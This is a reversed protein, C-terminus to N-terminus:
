EGNSAAEAESASAIMIIRPMLTDFVYLNFCNLVILLYVYFYWMHMKNNQPNTILAQPTATANRGMTANRWAEHRQLLAQQISFANRLDLFPDLTLLCLSLINLFKLSRAFFLRRKPKTFFDICSLSDMTGMEKKLGGLKTFYGLKTEYGGKTSLIIEM